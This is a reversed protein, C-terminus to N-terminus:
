MRMDVLFRSTESDDIILWRKDVFRSIVHHVLGVQTQRAVQVARM